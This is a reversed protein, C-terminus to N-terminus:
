VTIGKIILLLIFVLQGTDYIDDRAVGQGADYETMDRTRDQGMDYVIM